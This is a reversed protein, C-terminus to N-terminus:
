EISYKAGTKRDKNVGKKGELYEEIRAQSLPKGTNNNKLGLKFLKDSIQTITYKQNHYLHRSLLSKLITEPSSPM